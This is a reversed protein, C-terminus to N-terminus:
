ILAADRFCQSLITSLKDDDRIIIMNKFRNVFVYMNKYFVHRSVNIVSKNREIDSDFFDIEDITWKKFYEASSQTISQARTTSSSISQQM